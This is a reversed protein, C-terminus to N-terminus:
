WLRYKEWTKKRGDQVLVCRILSRHLDKENGTSKLQM